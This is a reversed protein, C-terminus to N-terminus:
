EFSAAAVTESHRPGLSSTLVAAARRASSRAGEGDGTVRQAHALTMLAAGVDASQQPDLAIFEAAALAERAAALAAAPARSTLHARSKLSLMGALGLVRKQRPYDIDALLRDIEQLAGAADGKAMRLQARLLRVKRLIVRHEAPNAQAARETADLDAVAQDLNGLLLHAQARSFLAGVHVWQNGQAASAYVARDLWVLGADTEEVRVQYLGLGSASKARVADSGQQADLRGVNSRLLELAARANGGEYLQSAWNVQVNIMAVTGGNGARELAAVSRRSWDVGERLRGAQTLMIQLMTTVSVYGVDTTLDHSEYLGAVRIAEDIGRDLQGQSWLLRVHATGCDTERDLSPRAMRRLNEFGDRMREVAQAPRGAALETEVTNCQVYAIREPDGLQRAIKEAKVLAAYEGETDGLNMYRGSINVLMSIIFRPDDGYNRELVDIGKEMLQRITIPRGDSGVESMIQYAFRAQFEARKSQYLAADRERQAQIAQWSTGAIGALLALLTASAAGVALRYRRVFKGVRYGVSDARASVPEHNLYRRLDAAFGDVTAYREAPSKKLAKAVINDLDGRLARALQTASTGRARASAADRVLVADSMRPPENEVLARLREVSTGTTMATPHTGALLMYLLVGLAYVDTAITVAARELQEPAAYDPTLAPGGLRTLEGPPATQGDGELLKAIGFDLLKANGGATVLINSPKLDRHLILQGHAHSVAALVQLFLLVRATVDLEHEDCWRDIPEGEVYELVLYPQGAAVGADILHTINPHALKALATAEHRLREAGGSGLLGLNLVKVAAQGEYRGDSRRALWVSGMGGQGLPRELTFGGISRGALSALGLPDFATGELFNEAIVATQQALLASVQEAIAPNQTQLQSLRAERQAGDAELLEDLLASVTDWTQQAIRVM